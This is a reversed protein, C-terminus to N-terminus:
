YYNVPNTNVSTLRVAFNPFKEKLQTALFDITFQESEYHGIDAIVIQQDADFFQHYKYDATIFIDAKRGIAEGLLFSGSGGCVAVRRVTDRCLATHRITSCKFLRKVNDLFEKVPQPEKLEGYMGSGIEQFTNSLAVIDYGLEEYSSAKKAAAIAPALLHNPMIVELKLEGVNQRKGPEGIAPDADGVPKFTGQGPVSFSCETYDGILGAGVDFVAQRIKDIDEPIGFTILKSLLGSKPQLIKADQLGLRDCIVKNVGGIMNDLNTHIAYLAIDNKLAKIVVREIYNKGTLSKLGSFVIPHHSVVMNAGTSIAEDVVAELSDLCVMIGTCEWGPSGTILRANDYSEQYVPPALQELFSIIDKIKLSEM